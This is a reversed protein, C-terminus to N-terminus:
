SEEITCNIKEIKKCRTSICFNKGTGKVEINPDNLGYCLDGVACVKCGLWIDDDAWPQHIMQPTRCSLHDKCLYVTKKTHIDRFSEVNLASHGYNCIKCTFLM